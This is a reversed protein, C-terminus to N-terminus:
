KFIYKRAYFVFVLLLYSFYVLLNFFIGVVSFALEDLFLLKILFIVLLSFSFFLYPKRVKKIEFKVGKVILLSFIIESLATSVAVGTIGFHRILIAGLIVNFFASLISSRLLIYQKNKVAAIASVPGVYAVILMGSLLVYLAVGGASYEEPLLFGYIIPYSGIVSFFVVIGVTRSFDVARDFEEIQNKESLSSIKAILLSTISIVSLSKLLSAFLYAINYYALEKSEAMIKIIFSDGWLYIFSMLGSMMLPFSYGAVTKIECWELIRVKRNLLFFGIVIVCFLLFSVFFLSKVYVNYDSIFGTFFSFFILILPALRTVLSAFFESGLVGGRVISQKEFNSFFASLVGIFYIYFSNTISFGFFSILTIALPSLVISILFIFSLNTYLIDKGYREYYRLIANSLGMGLFISCVVSLTMSFNIMGVDESPLINPLTMNVLFGLGMVLPMTILKLSSKKVVSFSM